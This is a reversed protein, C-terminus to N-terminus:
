WATMIDGCQQTFALYIPTYYIEGTNPIIPVVPIGTNIIIDSYPIGYCKYNGLTIHLNFLFTPLM